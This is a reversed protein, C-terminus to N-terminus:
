PPTPTVTPTPTVAPTPLGCTLTELDCGSIALLEDTRPMQFRLIDDVHAEHQAVVCAKYGEYTAPDTGADACIASPGALHVGDPISLATEYFGASPTCKEDISPSVLDAAALVKRFESTCFRAAQSELCIVRDAGQKTQWCLFARDICSGLRKLKEEIFARGAKQITAECKVVQKGAGKPDDLNEGGGLDDLCDLPPVPFATAGVAEQILEHARPQQVAFMREAACGHQDAICQAIAEVSALSPCDNALNEFGLGDLGRLDDLTLGNVACFKRITLILKGAETDIKAFEGGEPKGCKEGAKVVCAQQKPDADPITQICKLIGTACKDLISSNRASSSSPRGEQDGHSM